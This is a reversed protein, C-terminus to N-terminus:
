MDGGTGQQKNLAIRRIFSGIFTQKSDTEVKCNHQPTSSVTGSPRVNGVEEPFSDSRPKCAWPWYYHWCFLHWWKLSIMLACLHLSANGGKDAHSLSSSSHWIARLVWAGPGLNPEPGPGRDPDPNSTWIGGVNKPHSGHSFGRSLIKFSLLLSIQFFGDSTAKDPALILFYCLDCIRASVCGCVSPHFHYTYNGSTKKAKNTLWISIEQMSVIKLQTALLFNKANCSIWIIKDTNLLYDVKKCVECGPIAKYM